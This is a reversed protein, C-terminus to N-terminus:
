VCLSWGCGKRDRVIRVRFGIGERGVIEVRVGAAKDDLVVGERFLANYLTIYRQETTADGDDARAPVVRIFGEHEATLSVRYLLVGPNPDDKGDRGRVEAVYAETPSIPMVLAKTGGSTYIPSIVAEIVGSGSPAVVFDADTLWELKRKQWAIYESGVAQFGMLDWFGVYKQIGKYPQSFDFSYLDPLGFIHGTEHCLTEWGWNAGRCDNGFTVGHRIEVGQVPIGDGVAAGFTPSNPMGPSRSDVVYVIDYKRFDVDKAAKHIVEAIHTRQTHFESTKYDPWTSPHDMAIWQQRSDVKLTMKGYSARAFFDQAQPVLRQYLDAPTEDATTDSFHAFLM